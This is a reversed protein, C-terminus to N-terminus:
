RGLRCPGRRQQLKGKIHHSNLDRKYAVPHPLALLVEPPWTTAPPTCINSITLEGINIAVEHINEDSSTSCLHVDEISSRVYTALGYTNHYTAGILDYGVIKGRQGLQEENKAHTEPIALDDVDNDKLIKQLIQCKARSIDEINIQCINICPGFDGTLQTQCSDRASTQIM